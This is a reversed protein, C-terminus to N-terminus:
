LSCLFEALALLSQLFLLLFSPASGPLPPLLPTRQYSVQLDGSLLAAVFESLKEGSELPFSTLQCHYGLIQDHQQKDAKWCDALHRWHRLITNSYKQENHGEVSNILYM